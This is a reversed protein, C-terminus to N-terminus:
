SYMGGLDRKGKTLKELLEQPTFMGYIHDKDNIITHPVGQVQYKMAIDPNADVDIIEVSVKGKSVISFM